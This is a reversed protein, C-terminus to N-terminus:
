PTFRLWDFDVYCLSSVQLCIFDRVYDQLFSQQESLQFSTSEKAYFCVKLNKERLLYSDHANQSDNQKVQKSDCQHDDHKLDDM